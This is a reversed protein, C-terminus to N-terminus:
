RKIVSTIILYYSWASTGPVRLTYDLVHTFLAVHTSKSARRFGIIQWLPWYTSTIASLPVLSTHRQLHDFLVKNAYYALLQTLTIFPDSGIMPSIKYHGFMWLRAHQMKMRTMKHIHVLNSRVTLQALAAEFVIGNRRNILVDQTNFFLSRIGNECTM